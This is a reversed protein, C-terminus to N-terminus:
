QYVISYLSRATVAGATAKDTAVYQAFYNLTASGGAVPVYQLNQGSEQAGLRIDSHDANLLGVQVNKAGDNATNTLRGTVADVTADPEFYVGVNGSDPTCNTLAINFPTRGATAGATALASTSVTPLTVTFNPGGGNGSVECTQATVLGNITVTGDNAQAAGSFSAAVGLVAAVIARNAYQM